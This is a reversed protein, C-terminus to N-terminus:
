QHKQKLTDRLMAGAIIVIVGIIEGVEGLNFHYPKFVALSVGIKDGVWVLTEAGHEALMMLGLFALIIYAADELAPFKSMVKRVVQAAIALMVISALVGIVIIAINQSMAVVAIINDTSLSLDLFGISILVKILSATKPKSTGDENEEGKSFHGWCLYFLYAAGLVQVWPNRAIFAAFGLAVVRLVAALVMGFWIAKSRMKAPLDMVLANIAISNDGSLAADMILIAFIVGIGQVGINGLGVVFENIVTM